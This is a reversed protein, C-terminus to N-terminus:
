LKPSLNNLKNNGFFDNDMVVPWWIGDDGEKTAVLSWGEGEKRTLYIIFNCM